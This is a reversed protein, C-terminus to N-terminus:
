IFAFVQEVNHEINHRPHLMIQSKFQNPPTALCYFFQCHCYRRATEFPAQDTKGLLEQRRKM